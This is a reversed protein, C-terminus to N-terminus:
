IELIRVKPGVTNAMTEANQCCSLADDHSTGMSKLEADCLKRGPRGPWLVHIGKAIMAKSM